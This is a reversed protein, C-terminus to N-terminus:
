QPSTCPCGWCTCPRTTRSRPSGAATTRCSGCCFRRTSQPQECPRRQRCSTCTRRSGRLAMHLTGRAATASISPRTPLRQSSCARSSRRSASPCALAAAPVAVAGVAVVATSAESAMRRRYRSCNARSTHRQCTRRSWRISLAMTRSAPDAAPRAPRPM